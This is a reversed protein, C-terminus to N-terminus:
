TACRHALKVAYPIEFHLKGPEILSQPVHLFAIVLELLRDVRQNLEVEVRSRVVSSAGSALRPASGSHAPEWCRSCQRRDELLGGHLQRVDAPGLHMVQM